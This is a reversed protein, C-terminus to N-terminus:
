AIQGVLEEETLKDESGTSMNSRVIDTTHVNFRSISVLFFKRLISMIDKGEGVQQKVAEDGARLAARKRELIEKSRIEMTDVIDKFDQVNPDPILEIVHRRFSASGFSTFYQALLRYNLCRGM